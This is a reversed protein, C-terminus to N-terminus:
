VLGVVIMFRLGPAENNKLYRGGKMMEEAAACLPSSKWGWSQAFKFSDPSSSFCTMDAGKKRPPTYIEFYAQIVRRTDLYEPKTTEHASNGSSGGTKRSSATPISSGTNGNNTPTQPTSFMAVIDASAAGQAAAEAAISAAALAAGGDFPPSPPTWELDHPTPSNNLHLRLDDEYLTAENGGLSSSIQNVDDGETWPVTGDLLSSGAGTALDFTLGDLNGTSHVVPDPLRLRQSSPLPGSRLQTNLGSDENDNLDFLALREDQRLNSSPTNSDLKGRHLYVGLQHGKKHQVKQIYINWYSGAYWYTQSYVRKEVKLKTVDDFKVSFRFPPYKTVSAVESSLVKNEQSDLSSYDTPIPYFVHASESYLSSNDDEDEDDEDFDESEGGSVRDKLSNTENNKNKKRSADLAETIQEGHVSSSNGVEPVPNEEENDEDLNKKNSEFDEDVFVKKRFNFVRSLELEQQDVKASTVKHRLGTQLWLANRLSERKILLGGRHDKLSELLELQAYTLHCYHLRNNLADRLPQLEEAQLKTLRKNGDKTRRLLNVKYRYLLVMFQVRDWESPVFFGDATIVDAAIENPIEGWVNRPIDYGETCLFTKCSNIIERSANGYEYKTAFHLLSAINHVDVSKVIETVCYDVVEPLDLFSAVALLNTVYPKEKNHDEHGYLRSLALEFAQQTVNEDNAFDITLKRPIHAEQEDAAWELSVLSAFFSSRSLILKHLHYERGFCIITVDSSVGKLFGKQYLFESLSLVRPLESERTELQRISANGTRKLSKSQAPLKGQFQSIRRHGSTSALLNPMNSISSSSSMLHTTDKSAEDSSEEDVNSSFATTSATSLFHSTYNTNSFVLSQGSSANSQPNSTTLRSINMMSDEYPLPSEHRTISPPIM